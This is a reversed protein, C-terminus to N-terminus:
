IGLGAQLQTSGGNEFSTSLLSSLLYTDFLSSVLFSIKKELEASAYVCKFKFIRDNIYSKSARSGWSCPHINVGTTSPASLVVTDTAM